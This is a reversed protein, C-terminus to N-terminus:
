HHTRCLEISVNVQWGILYGIGIKVDNCWHPATDIYRVIEWAVEIICDCALELMARVNSAPEAEGQVLICILKGDVVVKSDLEKPREWVLYRKELEWHM